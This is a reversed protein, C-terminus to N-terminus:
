NFNVSGLYTKGSTSTLSHMLATELMEMNNKSIKCGKCLIIKVSDPAM